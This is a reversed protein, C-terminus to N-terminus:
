GKVARTMLAGTIVECGTAEMKRQEGGGEPVQCVGPKDMEQHQRGVVKETLRTEKGRESHRALNQVFRIFPFCTWVIETQTEKLHDPPRRTTWNGAPDQSLSGGQYHPRHKLHTTDQM